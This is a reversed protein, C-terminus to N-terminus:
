KVLVTRLSKATKKEKGVNLRLVQDGIKVDAILDLFAEVPRMGKPVKLVM